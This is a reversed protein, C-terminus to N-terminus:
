RVAIPPSDHPSPPVTPLPIVVRSSVDRSPLTGLHVPPATTHPSPGPPAATRPSDEKETIECRQAHHTIISISNPQDYLNTTHGVTKIPIERTRSALLSGPMAPLLIRARARLRAGATARLPRHPPLRWGPLRALSLKLRRLCLLAQCLASQPTHISFRPPRLVSRAHEV